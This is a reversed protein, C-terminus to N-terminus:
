RQLKNLPKTRGSRREIEQEIIDPLKLDSAVVTPYPLKAKRLVDAFYRDARFVDVYPLYMVHLIDGVASEELRPVNEFKDLNDIFYGMYAAIVASFSFSVDPNAAVLDSSQRKSISYEDFGKKWEQILDQLHTVKLERAETALEAVLNVRIAKDSKNIIAALDRLGRMQERCGLIISVLSSGLDRLWKATKREQDFRDFYVKVFNIPDFAGRALEAAFAEEEIDGFLFKKWYDERYFRNTAPFESPDLNFLEPQSVLIAKRCQSTLKGKKLLNKELSLRESRPLGSARLQDQLLQRLKSRFSLAVKTIDPYWRGDDAFAYDPFPLRCRKNRAVLIHHFVDYVPLELFPRLCHADSLRVIMRARSTAQPRASPDLHTAETIHLLSYRVVIKGESVLRELCTLVAGLRPDRPLDCEQSFRSYDSSDLYVQIPRLTNAM